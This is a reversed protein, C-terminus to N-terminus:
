GCGLHQRALGRVSPDADDRALTLTAATDPSDPYAGCLLSLNRRRVEAVPDSIANAGICRSVEPIRLVLLPALTVLRDLAAGVAARDQPVELMLLGYDVVLGRRVERVLEARVRAGLLARAQSENGTVAVHNDFGLDGTRVYESIGASLRVDAPIRGTGVLTVQVTSPDRTPEVKMEWDDIHGRLIPGGRWGFSLNRKAALRRWPGRRVAGLTLLTLVVLACAAALLALADSM